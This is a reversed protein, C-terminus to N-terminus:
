IEQNKHLISFLYIVCLVWQVLSVNLYNVRLPKSIETTAIEIGILEMQIWDSANLTLLMNTVLFTGRDLRAIWNKLPSVHNPLKLLNGM